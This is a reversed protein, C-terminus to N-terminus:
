RGFNMGNNYGGWYGGPMPAGRNIPAFGGQFQPLIPQQGGFGPAITGPNIFGPTAQPFTGQPMTGQPIANLPLSSQTDKGAPKSEPSSSAPAQIKETPTGNLIVPHGNHHGHFDIPYGDFHGNIPGHGNGGVAYCGPPVHCCFPSFANYQYCCTKPCGWCCGCKGFCTLLNHVLGWASAKGSGLGLTVLGLFAVVLFRKM